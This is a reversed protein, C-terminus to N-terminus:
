DAAALCALIAVCSIWNPWTLINFSTSWKLFRVYLRRPLLLPFIIVGVSLNVFWPKWNYVLFFSITFGFLLRCPFLGFRWLHFNGACFFASSCFAFFTLFLVRVFVIDVTFLRSNDFIVRFFGCCCTLSLSTPLPRARTYFRTLFLALRCYPQLKPGTVTTGSFPNQLSVDAWFKFLLVYRSINQIIWRNVPVNVYLECCSKHEGYTYRQRM